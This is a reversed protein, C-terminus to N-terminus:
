QAEAVVVLRGRMGRHGSGCYESCVFDFSGARHAVFELRVSRGGKPIKLKLGYGKIEIGHTGDTSRLVLAVADGQVVQINPPDFRFRSATVEITRQAAESGLTLLSLACFVM